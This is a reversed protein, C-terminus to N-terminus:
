HGSLQKYEDIELRASTLLRVDVLWRLRVQECSAALVIGGERRVVRVVRRRMVGCAREWVAVGEDTITRGV